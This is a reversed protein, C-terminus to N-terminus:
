ESRNPYKLELWIAELKEIMKTPYELALKIQSLQGFELESKIGSLLGSIEDLNNATPYKLESKIDSLLSSIEDLQKSRGDIRGNAILQGKVEKVALEIGDLWGRTERRMGVLENRIQILVAVCCMAVITVLALLATVM